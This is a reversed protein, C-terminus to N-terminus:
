EFGEVFDANSLGAYGAGSVKSHHEKYQLIPFDFSLKGSKSCGFTPSGSAQSNASGSILKTGSRIEFNEHFILSSNVTGRATFTGPYPGRAKGSARFMGFDSSCSSKAKSSSFREGSLKSDIGPPSRLTSSPLVSPSMIDSRGGCSALVFVAGFFAIVSASLGSGGNNWMTAVEADEVIYHLVRWDEIQSTAEAV